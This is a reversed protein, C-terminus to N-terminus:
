MHRLGKRTTQRRDKVEGEATYFNKPIEYNEHPSRM